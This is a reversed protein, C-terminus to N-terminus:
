QGVFQGHTELHLQVFLQPAFFGPTSDYSYIYNYNYNYNYLPCRRCHKNRRFNNVVKPRLGFFAGANEASGGDTATAAHAGVSGHDAKTILCTANTHTDM